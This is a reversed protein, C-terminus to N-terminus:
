RVVLELTAHRQPVDDELWPVLCARAHSRLVYTGPADFRLVCAAGARDFRIDGMGADPGAVQTLRHARIDGNVVLVPRGRRVTVTQAGHGITLRARPPRTRVAVAAALVATLGLALAFLLM